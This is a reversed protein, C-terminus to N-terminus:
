RFFAGTLFSSEEMDLGADELVAILHQLIQVFDEFGVVARADAGGHADQDSDGAEAGVVRVEQEVGKLGPFIPHYCSKIHFKFPFIGMLLM